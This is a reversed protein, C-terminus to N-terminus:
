ATKGKSYGSLIRGGHSALTQLVLDVVPEKRQNKYFESVAKRYALNREEGLLLMGKPVRKNHVLWKGTKVLEYNLALDVLENVIFLQEFSDAAGVLDDLLNTIQYRVDRDEEESYQAPGELLRSQSHEKLHALLDANGVVLVGEAVMQPLSPKRREFDKKMWALCSEKTHVFAEVPWGFEFFSERYCSSLTTMIVVIDLDSTSSQENRVTSGALIALDCDHFHNAVFRSAAEISTM